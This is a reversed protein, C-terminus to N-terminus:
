VCERKDRKRLMFLANGIGREHYKRRRYLRPVCFSPSRVPRESGTTLSAAVAGEKECYEPDYTFRYGEDTEEIIGAQEGRIYVIGKRYNDEM